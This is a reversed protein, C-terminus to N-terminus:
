RVVAGDVLEITRDAADAVVPDHTVAIVATGDTTVHRFADLVDRGTDRDLSGTPEDALLVQPRNVMARAIAVRQCQGGSLAGPRHHARDGLGFRELLHRPRDADRGSRAAIRPLAVNEIATLAPLLRFAQFVFGIHRCRLRTRERETRGGVARGGLSLSGDTPGDLLGLIQLLTSKGSGSPGQVALFEGDAVRLSVGRLAWVPGAATHFRKTLGRAELM